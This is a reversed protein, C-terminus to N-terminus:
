SSPYQASRLQARLRLVHPIYSRTEPPLPRGEYVIRPGANYAALAKPLNGNFEVLLQSLYKTGLFINTRPHFLEDTRRVGLERGTSPLVQMLGRANRPSVALPDGGSEALIVARILNPDVGFRSSADVIHKEFQALKGEVLFEVRSRALHISRAVGPYRSALAPTEKRRPDPVLANLWALAAVFTLHLVVL